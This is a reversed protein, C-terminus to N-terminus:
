LQIMDDEKVPIFNVKKQNLLQLAHNAYNFNECWRKCRRKLENDIYKEYSYEFKVMAYNGKYVDIYEGLKYKFFEEQLNKLDDKILEVSPKPHESTNIDHLDNPLQYARKGKSTKKNLSASAIRKKFNEQDAKLEMYRNLKVNRAKLEKALALIDKKNYYHSQGKKFYNSFDLEERIFKGIGYRSDKFYKYLDYESLWEDSIKRLKLFEKAAKDLVEESLQEAVPLNSTGALQAIATRLEKLEALIQKQMIM